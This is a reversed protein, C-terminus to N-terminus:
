DFLSDVYDNEAQQEASLRQKIRIINSNERYFERESKDLQKGRGRKWRIHMIEALLGEGIESLYGIFTWWHMHDDTRVEHGAVKNVASFIMKEDQEWDLVQVHMDRTEMDGGDLYWIAAKLAETLHAAPIPEKYLCEICAMAKEKNTLEPDSYAQFIILAARYDSRIPYLRGCVELAAPLQGIMKM